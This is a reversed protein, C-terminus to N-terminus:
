SRRRSRPLTSAPTPRNPDFEFAEQYRLLEGYDQDFVMPATLSDPDTGAPLALFKDPNITSQYLDVTLLNLDCPRFALMWM